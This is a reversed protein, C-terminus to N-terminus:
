NEVFSQHRVCPPNQNLGLDEVGDNCQILVNALGKSKIDVKTSVHRNKYDFRRRVVLIPKKNDVKKRPKASKV